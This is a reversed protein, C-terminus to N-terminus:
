KVCACLHGLADATYLYVTVWTCLLYILSLVICVVNLAARKCVFCVIM